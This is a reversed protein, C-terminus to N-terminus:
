IKIRFYELGTKVPISFAKREPSNTAVASFSSIGLEWSFPFRFTDTCLIIKPM